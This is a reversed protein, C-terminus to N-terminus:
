FHPSIETYFGYNSTVLRGRFTICVNTFRLYFTFGLLNLIKSHFYSLTDNSLDCRIRIKELARMIFNILISPDNQVEEYVDRDELQKSAENLYDKKDWVVVASGKDADKITYNFTPYDKLNYLANREETTLNNYRESSIVIDM